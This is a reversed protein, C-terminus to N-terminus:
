GQQAAAGAYGQQRWAEFVAVAVANSLNLSRQGARMPLRVQHASDFDGRVAEPLGATESGFVLWDGPQWAVEALTTSARTTFAFARGGAVQRQACLSAWDAHRLVAAHEHYDLGARRLLKDDMSFGLPEVLHLQCGTNAALRIANGTNPPIEPHVLVIHFMAAANHRAPSPAASTGTPELNPHQRARGGVWLQVQAAGAALLAQAAVQATSGTTLVDDVLAVCRGRLAAAGPAAADVWMSDALHHLRQSRGAGVQHPTDRWRLLLDARAPLGRLRAARRALEWAQNYGREALRRPSLPVPLVLEAPPLGAQAAVAAAMLQALPRAQEPQQRFKFDAVWRDWPFGYDAVTVTHLFAPPTRLCAGCRGASSLPLACQQCRPRPAAFRAQCAHCLPAPGWSDCLRCRRPWRPAHGGGTHM